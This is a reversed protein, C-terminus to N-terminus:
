EGRLFELGVVQRALFIQASQIICRLPRVRVLPGADEGRLLIGQPRKLAALDFRVVRNLDDIRLSSM